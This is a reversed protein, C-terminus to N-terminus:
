LRPVLPAACWGGPDRAGPTPCEYRGLSALTLGIYQAAYKAGVATLHVGDAAMWATQNASYTNWDAISLEPYSGSSIADRLAINNAAFTAASSASAPSTYSVQERYTLWVIRSIGRGRAALAVEHIAQTFLPAFDNYGAAIVITDFTGNASGIAAVAASPAYGERGRCSFGILRRCSELDSTFAAGKLEDLENYWRIGAFASDAIFLVRGGNTSPNNPPVPQDSPRPTGLFWGALDVVLRTGTNSYFALGREGLPVIALNATPLRWRANLTSTDPRLTGAPFVSVYGPRLTDVATVNIAVADAEITSFPVEIVGGPHLAENTARSDYVRQPSVPVFLGDTSPPAEPGTFWGTIDVIVDAPMSRHLIFAGASIPVILTVARTSNLRDANLVSSASLSTGPPRVSLYGPSSVGVVTLTASIAIADSPITPPLTVNLDGSNRDGTTRTDLLRTQSTPVFRGASVPESTDLFVGTVDVVLHTSSKVFVDVAGDQLATLVSNATTSSPTYNLNSSAPRATGAPFVTLHGRANADVATVTLAAATALSDSGCRGAVTIRITSGSPVPEGGQARTDLLRCPKVPSLFSAITPSDDTPMAM